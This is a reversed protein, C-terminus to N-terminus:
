LRRLAGEDYAQDLYPNDHILLLGHRRCFAVASEFFVRDAVAATPNNPYNLLLARCRAGVLADAEAGLEPLFTTENLPLFVPAVSAVDAAGFYSPYAVSTMLISDGPDAIAMLLHGLGEQSGILTLAQTNPDLAVGYRQEYWHM